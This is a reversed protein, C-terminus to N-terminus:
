TGGVVVQDGPAKFESGGTVWWNRNLDEQGARTGLNAEAWCSQELLGHHGTDVQRDRQDQPCHLWGTGEGWKSNLFLQWNETQEVKEKNDFSVSLKWTGEM